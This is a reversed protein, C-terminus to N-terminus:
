EAVAREDPQTEVIRFGTFEFRAGGDGDALRVDGGHARAVSRVISLGLGTGSDATSYGEEFVTDGDADIGTGDDAVALGGPTAGGTVRLGAPEERGHEVANRFRSGCASRIRGADAAVVRGSPARLTAARGGVGRSKELITVTHDTSGLAYAAGAGALGAGVIGIHAMVTVM